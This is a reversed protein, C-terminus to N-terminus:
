QKTIDKEEYNYIDTYDGVSLLMLNNDKDSTIWM